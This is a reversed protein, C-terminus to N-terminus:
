LVSLWADFVKVFWLSEMLETETNWVADPFDHIIRHKQCQLRSRYDDIWRVWWYRESWKIFNGKKAWTNNTLEFKAGPFKKYLKSIWWVVQVWQLTCSRIIKYIPKNWPATYFWASMVMVINGNHMLAYIKGKSLRPWIWEIHNKECFDYYFNKDVLEFIKTDRAYIRKSCGIRHKILEDWKENYLFDFISILTVWNEKCLLFKKSHYSKPKQQIFQWSSSHHFKFWNYEIALNYEPLYIDLEMGNLWQPHVREQIQIWPKWENLKSVMSSEWKGHKYWCKPCWNWQLHNIVLQSFKGHKKCVIDISSSSWTYTSCSYDYIDWHVMQAKSIFEKIHWKNWSCYPCWQWSLHSSASHVFVWHIPCIIQIDNYTWTYEIKSYDYKDWHIQIAKEIFSENDYWRSSTCKVCWHWSLHSNPTQEFNWHKRCTITVNELANIYEVKSYDYRDWHINRAKEIFSERTWKRVWACDACWQWRLHCNAVQTFEWHKKCIIIIRGAATTYEVKSYDYKDWHVQIAKEIFSKTDRKYGSPMYLFYLVSIRFFLHVIILAYISKRGSLFM